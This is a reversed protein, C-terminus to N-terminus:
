ISNWSFHPGHYGGSWYAMTYTYVCFRGLCARPGVWGAIQQTSPKEEPPYLLWPMFNVGSLCLISPLFSHLQVESGQIYEHCKHSVAEGKKHKYACKCLWLFWGTGEGQGETWGNM